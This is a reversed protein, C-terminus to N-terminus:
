AVTIANISEEYTCDLTATPEILLILFSAKVPLADVVANPKDTVGASESSTNTNTFPTNCCVSVYLKDPLVIVNSEAGSEELVISM